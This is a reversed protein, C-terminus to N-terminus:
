LGVFVLILIRANMVKGDTEKNEPGTITLGVTCLGSWFSATQFTGKERQFNICVCHKLIAYYAIM